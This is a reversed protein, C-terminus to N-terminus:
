AAIAIVGGIILRRSRSGGDGLINRRQLVEAAIM